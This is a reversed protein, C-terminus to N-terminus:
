ATHAPSRRQVAKYWALADRIYSVPDSVRDPVILKRGHAFNISAAPYQALILGLPARLRLQRRTL